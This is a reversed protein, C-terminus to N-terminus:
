YVDSTKIAPRSIQHSRTVTVSTSGCYCVREACHRESEILESEIMISRLSRRENEGERGGGESLRPLIICLIATSKAGVIVMRARAQTVTLKQCFAGPNLPPRLQCLKVARGSSVADRNM